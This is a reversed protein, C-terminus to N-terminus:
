LYKQRVKEDNHQPCKPGEERRMSRGRGVRKKSPKPSWSLRPGPNDINADDEMSELKDGSQMTEEIISDKDSVNQANTEEANILHSPIPTPTTMDANTPTNATTHSRQIVTTTSTPRDIFVAGVSRSSEYTELNQSTPLHTASICSSLNCRWGNCEGENIMQDDESQATDSFEYLSKKKISQYPSFATGCENGSDNSYQHTPRSFPNSKNFLRYDYSGTNTDSTETESTLDM